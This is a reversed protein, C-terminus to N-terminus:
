NTSNSLFCVFRQFSLSLPYFFCSLAAAECKGAPRCPKIIRLELMLRTADPEDDINFARFGVVNDLLCELNQHIEVVPRTRTRLWYRSPAPMRM